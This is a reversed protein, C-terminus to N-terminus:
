GWSEKDLPNIGYFWHIFGCEACIFTSATRNLFDIGLFTMAATNLQARSVYFTDHNCHHCVLEKGNLAVVQPDKM